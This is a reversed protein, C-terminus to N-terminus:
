KGCYLCDNKFEYTEIIESIEDLKFKRGIGDTGIVTVEDLRGSDILKRERRTVRVRGTYGDPTNVKTHDEIANIM